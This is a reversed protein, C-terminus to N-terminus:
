GQLRKTYGGQYDRILHYQRFAEIAERVRSTQAGPDTSYDDRHARVWDFVNQRTFVEPMAELLKRRYPTLFSTMPTAPVEPEKKLLPQLHERLSPDQQALTELRGQLATAVRLEFGERFKARATELSERDLRPSVQYFATWAEGDAMIEQHLENALTILHRAQDALGQDHEAKRELDNLADVFAGNKRVRDASGVPILKLETFLDALPKAILYRRQHHFREWVELLEARFPEGVPVVELVKGRQYFARVADEPTSGHSWAASGISESVTEDDRVLADALYDGPIREEVKFYTIVNGATRAKHTAGKM